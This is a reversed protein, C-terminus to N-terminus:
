VVSKRDPQRVLTIGKKGSSDAPKVVMPFGVEGAQAVLVAPDTHHRWRHRNVGASGALELLIAKNKSAEAVERPYRYPTRYRETLECWTQVGLEGGAAVVGALSRDGLAAAIAAPQRISVPLHEDAYRLAPADTSRDVAITPLGRRRAELFIPLQGANAGLVLLPARTAVQPPPVPERGGDLRDEPYIPLNAERIYYPRIRQQDLLLRHLYRGVVAVTALATGALVVAGAGLLGPGALGALGLVALALAGALGLAAVLYGGNLPRWSHGFLLAFTDGFLRTLRFRLGGALRGRHAVPVCAYRAGLRTVTALFYPLGHRLEGVTQAVGTRVVRFTTAGVPLEIGFARRALWHQASSAWRRWLPDQRHERIGFVIDYGQGAKALLKPIESPPCQLDCDLQATWPKSAYRYGAAQAAELGGNCTLSLYRVRPDAAALARIQALTDDTSGDDVLLLELEDIGALAATVEAHLRRVGAGENLCPVLVTLGTSAASM